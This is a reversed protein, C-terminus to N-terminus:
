VQNSFFPAGGSPLAALSTANNDTAFPFKQFSTTNPSDGGLYGFTISSVGALRSGGSVDGVDTSNSDTAFPVKELVNSGPYVGGASYAHTESSLGARFYKGVTM